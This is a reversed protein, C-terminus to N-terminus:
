VLINVLSGRARSTNGADQAGGQAGQSPQATPQVSNSPNAAAASNALLSAISQAQLQSSRLAAISVQQARQGASIQAAAQGM